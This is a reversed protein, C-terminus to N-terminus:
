DGARWSFGGCAGDQACLEGCVKLADERPVGEKSREGGNIFAQNEWQCSSDSMSWGCDSDKLTLQIKASTVAKAQEAKTSETQAQLANGPEDRGPEPEAIEVKELEVKAPEEGETQMDAPSLSWHSDSCVAESM